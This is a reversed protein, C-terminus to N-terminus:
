FGKVQEEMWEWLRRGVEPDRTDARAEGVRAWPIFYQGVWFVWGFWVCVCVRFLSFGSHLCFLVSFGDAYVRLVSPFPPPPLPPCCSRVQGNAGRAAEPATGAYLQTLAGM